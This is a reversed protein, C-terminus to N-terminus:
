KCTASCIAACTAGAVINGSIFAFYRSKYWPNDIKDKKEYIKQTTLLYDNCTQYKMRYVELKNEFVKRESELKLKLIKMKNEYEIKLIEKEKDLGTLLLALEEESIIYGTEKAREGKNVKLRKKPKVLSPTM